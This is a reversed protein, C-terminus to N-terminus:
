RCGADAACCIFAVPPTTGADFSGCGYFAAQFCAQGAPCGGDPACRAHCQDDGGLVAGADLIGADLAPGACGGDTASTCAVQTYCVEDAACAQFCTGARRDACAFSFGSVWTCHGTVCRPAGGDVGPCNTSWLCNPCACYRSVEGRADALFASLNARNVSYPPCAGWGTCGGDLTAEVCDSSLSCADYRTQIARLACGLTGDNPCYYALPSCGLFTYGEQSPPIGADPSCFGPGGDQFVPPRCLPSRDPCDLSSVSPPPCVWGTETCGPENIAVGTCSACCQPRPFPLCNLDGADFHHTVVCGPGAGALWAGAAMGVACALAPSWGRV